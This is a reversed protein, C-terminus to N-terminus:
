ASAVARLRDLLVPEARRTATDFEGRIDREAKEIMRHCQSADGRAWAQAAALRYRLYPPMTRLLAPDIPQEVIEGKCANEFAQELRLLAWLPRLAKLKKPDLNELEHECRAFIAAFATDDRRQQAARLALYRGFFRQGMHDCAEFWDLQHQPIESAIVGHLSQDCAQLVRRIPERDPGNRWWRALLLGDSSQLRRVPILSAIALTGNYAGFALWLARDLEMPRSVPWALPLCFAAALTNALPGGSVFWLMQRRVSGSFDPIAQVTGAAGPAPKRFRIRVGHLRREIFVPGISVRLVRMGVCAAVVVHGFEHVAVSAVLLAMFWAVLLPFSASPSAHALVLGVLAGGFGGVLSYLFKV